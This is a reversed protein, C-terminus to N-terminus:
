GRARENAVGHPWCRMRADRNASQTTGPPKGSNRNRRYECLVSTVVSLPYNHTKTPPPPIDACARVELVRTRALASTWIVGALDHHHYSDHRALAIIGGGRLPCLM